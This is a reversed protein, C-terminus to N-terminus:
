GNHARQLPKHALVSYEPGSPNLRSQWLNIREANFEPWGMNEVYHSFDKWPDSAVFNKIRALTLHAKFPRSEREFGFGELEKELTRVLNMLKQVEGDVGLWAVRYQGGSGFYGSKSGQLVPDQCEVRDLCSKVQPLLDDQVEGLFRLTIHWNGPRTWILRSRFRGKWEERAQGLMQQYEQPLPIGFFIRM